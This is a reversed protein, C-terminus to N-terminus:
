KQPYAVKKKPDPIIKFRWTNKIEKFSGMKVKKGMQLIQIAKDMERHLDKSYPLMHARPVKSDRTIVWAYIAVPEDVTSGLVFFEEPLPATTPGGLLDTYTAYALFYIAFALPIVVILLFFKRLIHIGIWFLICATVVVACFLIFGSM